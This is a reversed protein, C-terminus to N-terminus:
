SSQTGLRKQITACLKTNSSSASITTTHAGLEQLIAQLLDEPGKEAARVWARAPYQSEDDLRDYVRKALQSKGIGGFGVVSIVKLKEKPQHGQTSSGRILEMLEEEAADTGVPNDTYMEPEPKVEHAWSDFVATARGHGYALDTYKKRLESAEDSRKRLRVIAATFKGRARVTKLWHAKQRIWGADAVPATSIRHIFRDICDDIDYALDRVIKIWEQHAEAADSAHQHNGDDTIAAAIISCERQIHEIDHELEALLWRRRLFFGTLKPAVKAAVTAVVTLEIM